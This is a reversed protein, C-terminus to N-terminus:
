RSKVVTWDNWLNGNVTINDSSVTRIKGAPTWIDDSTIKVVYEGDPYWIPTFHTRGNGIDYKNVPLEYTENETYELVDKYTKYMFEPWEAYVTQANTHVGSGTILQSVSINVGYGSKMNNTNDFLDKDPNMTVNTTASVTYTKVYPKNTNGLDDIALSGDTGKEYFSLKGVWYGADVLEGDDGMVYTTQYYWNPIYVSKWEKWTVSQTGSERVSQNKFGRPKKDDAHTDPSANASVNTISAPITYAYSGDIYVKIDEVTSSSPTHWKVYAITEINAPAEVTTTKSWGNGVFSVKIPNIRTRDADSSVYVTTYVDIDSAYAYESDFSITDNYSGSANRANGDYHLTIVGLGNMIDANSVAKSTDVDVKDWYYEKATLAYESAFGYYLKGRSNEKKDYKSFFNNNQLDYLAMESPTFAYM